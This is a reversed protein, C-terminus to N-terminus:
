ETETEAAEESEEGETGEEGEEGETGEEAVATDVVTEEVEPEPEDAGSGEKKLNVLWKGDQKVLEIQEEKGDQTYHCVANDGDIECEGMVVVPVEVDTESVLDGMSGMGEIMDITAGTAETGLAKADSYEKNNLHNLFTEAVASPDEEKSGCANMVIIAIAIVGLKFLNKM